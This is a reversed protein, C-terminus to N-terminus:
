TGHAFFARAASEYKTRKAVCLRMDELTNALVRPGGDIQAIREPTFFAEVDKIHQADCFVGGMSILQTQGHHKPVAALLREFNAKVWKWAGDRLEPDGLQRWVPRAVEAPRLIPDLAFNLVRLRLKPSRPSVLAALLKGRLEANDTKALQAHVTDWLHPDAEEGTVTLALSTLNTDVAEPHIAGDGGYGLFALGRKRAEARVAPDHVTSALFDLVKTRLQLRDNDEGAVPSWGVDQGVPGYLRSAYAEVTKRAPANKYLWDRADSLYAMPEGAIDRHPDHALPAAAKVIDAFSASGRSYAARLSNAYAVLERRNLSPLGKARLQDLDAPALAFRYYGAFNANPFIWAPCSDGVPLDGERETLLTCTETSGSAASYRVCVPVQWLRDSDGTSGLPLYRSQKLHVHPAGQCVVNAEIFPVGPQDLFTRFPTKVDKGAATSLSTLFDDATANGYAHTKLYSQVGRQFTEPGLWREFMTLVGAGKRYTIADFANEIDNSSEIPQRISRASTLADSGMASQVSLVLDIDGESKPDWADSAKAGLWSAFAENLWIDDWWAHTVLDGTWQHALEHAMVQAFAKKLSLPATDGKILILDSFTLAGANEMAGSKGPVAIIDLKDWPYEIGFYEELQALIEGTHPLVYAAIDPGRGRATIGRLALPRHRVANPPVDPASVVELPGVAFALLYSPLAPTPAFHVHVWRGDPERTTEQTNAIAQDAAPVVLTTTWPLKFGPEDFCPFADRAATSEFQTFAYAVGSQVIKHLGELSPGWTADYEVHLRAKGAPLAQAFTASALGTPDQQHWTGAIEAGGEPTATLRKVALKLGHLWVVTRPHDLTMSIDAKGSFGEQEPDITLEISEATPRTDGPLRLKPPAEDAAHAARALLLSFAALMVLFTKSRHPM